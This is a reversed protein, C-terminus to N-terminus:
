WPRSGSAAPASLDQRSVSDPSRTVSDPRTPPDAIPMTVTFTSGQCPASEVELRGGMMTTFRKSLALGLGTGEIDSSQRGLRDFPTFLRPLDAAGIGIGTDRIGVSVWAGDTPHVLLHIRGNQQNYKIANSLLNLLVQQLRRRDALVWVGSSLPAPDSIVEIGKATALPRILGVTESLLVSLEVPECTMEFEDSETGTIALVDNIMALLHQGGRLIHGVAEEQDAGVADLELLQAFGIIANLPTRLEHSM